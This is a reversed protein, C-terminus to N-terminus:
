IEAFDALVASGWAWIKNTHQEFVLKKLKHNDRVESLSASFLLNNIFSYWVVDLIHLCFSKKNLTSNYNLAKGNMENIILLESGIKFVCQSEM